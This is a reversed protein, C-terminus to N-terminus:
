ERLWSQRDDGYPTCRRACSRSLHKCACKNALHKCKAVEFFNTATAGPCVATVLVGHSRNEVFLAQSFSLVFAKTAAYTAFYPGPFFAATSAINIVAGARRARMPQLFFHTLAVLAEVNLRLMELQRELQLEAFPEFAGFGANNMLLDVYLGRSETGAFLEAPANQQSLDLPIVVVEVGPHASQLEARLSELKDTSRAVLILSRGARALERAFVEGIGSSAGTILAYSQPM